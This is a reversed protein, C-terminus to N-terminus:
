IPEPKSTCINHVTQKKQATTKDVLTIVNGIVSSPTMPIAFKDYPGWMHFFISVSAAQGSIYVPYNRKVSLISVRERVNRMNECRKRKVIM